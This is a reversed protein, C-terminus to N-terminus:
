GAHEVIAEFLEDNEASIVCHLLEMEPSLACKGPLGQGNYPTADLLRGETDALVPLDVEDIGEHYELALEGAPPGVGMGQWLTVLFSM